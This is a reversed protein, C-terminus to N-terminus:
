SQFAPQLDSSLSGSDSRACGPRSGHSGPIRRDALPPFCCIIRWLNEFMSQSLELVLEFCLLGQCTWLIDIHAVFGPHM